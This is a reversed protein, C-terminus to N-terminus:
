VYCIQLMTDTFFNQTLMDNELDFAYKLTYLM